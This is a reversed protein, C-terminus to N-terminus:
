SQTERFSHKAEDDKQMRNNHNIAQRILVFLAGAWFRMM